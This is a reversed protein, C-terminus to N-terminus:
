GPYPRQGEKKIGFRAVVCARSEWPWPLSQPCSPSRSWRGCAPLEALGAQGPPGHEGRERSPVGSEGVCWHRCRGPVSLCICGSLPLSPCSLRVGCACVCECWVCLCVCPFLGSVPAYRSMPITGESPSVASQFFASACVFTCLLVGSLCLGAACVCVCVCVCSCLRSVPPRGSVRPSVCGPVLVSM